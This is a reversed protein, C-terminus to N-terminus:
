RHGRIVYAKQLIGNQDIGIAVAFNLHIAVNVLKTNTSYIQEYWNWSAGNYHFISSNEGVILIDNKGNGRIKWPFSFYGVENEIDIYSYATSEYKDNLTYVGSGGGVWLNESETVTWLTSAMPTFHVKDDITNGTFNPFREYVTKWEGNDLTLVISGDTSEDYGSTWIIVIGTTNDMTGWIDTLDVETGSEMRTFESGDYHVISGNNGVFFINNLSSSWIKNVIGSEGNGWDCEWLQTTEDDVIKYISCSSGLWISGDSFVAISKAPFYGWKGLYNKLKWESGDWHAANFSGSDTEINGVVWVNNEDIIAVDNLYSGYDGLTDIEWVFNHSTTDMLCQTQDENWHYGAKCACEGNVEIQNEGCELPEPNDPCASQTLIILLPFATFKVANRFNPLLKHTIIEM